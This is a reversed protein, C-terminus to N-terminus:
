KEVSSYEALVLGKEVLSNQSHRDLPLFSQTMLYAQARVYRM